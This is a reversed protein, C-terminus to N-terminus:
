GWGDGHSIWCISCYYEYRTHGTGINTTYWWKTGDTPAGCEHCLHEDRLPKERRELEEEKLGGVIGWFEQDWNTEAM